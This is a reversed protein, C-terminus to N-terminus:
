EGHKPTKPFPNNLMGAVPCCGAARVICQFWITSLEYALILKVASYSSRNSSEVCRLKTFFM